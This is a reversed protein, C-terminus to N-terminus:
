HTRYGSREAFRQADGVPRRSCSLRDASLHAGACPLDGRFILLAASVSGDTRWLISLLRRMPCSATARILAYIWRTIGIPSISRKRLNERGPAFNVSIM